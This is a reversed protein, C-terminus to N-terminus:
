EYGKWELGCEPCVKWDLGERTYSCKECRGNQVRTFGDNYRSWMM